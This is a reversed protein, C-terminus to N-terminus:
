PQKKELSSRKTKNIFNLMRYVQTKLLRKQTNTFIGSFFTQYIKQLRLNLREQAFEHRLDLRDSDEPTVTELILEEMEPTRNTLYQHVGHHMCIKCLSHNQRLMQIKEFPLDMYNGITYKEANFIGCCLMVNGQFDLSVQSDRLRCPLNHSKQAIALAEKLPLALRKILQNDEETLLFDSTDEDVYALIKELPFIQAWVPEFDVGLAAAFKRM